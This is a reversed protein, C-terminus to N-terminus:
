VVVLPIKEQDDPTDKGGDPTDFGPALRQHYRRLESVYWRRTLEHSFLGCAAVGFCFALYELRLPLVGLLQAFPPIYVCAFIFVQSAWFCTWLQYNTNRIRGLLGGNAPAEGYSIHWFPKETRVSVLFLLEGWMFMFWGVSSAKMKGWQGCSYAPDITYPKVGAASNGSSSSSGNSSTATTTANTAKRSPLVCMITPNHDCIVMRFPYVESPGEEDWFTRAVYTVTEDFNVHKYDYSFVREAYMRPIRGEWMWETWDFGYRDAVAYDVAGMSDTLQESNGLQIIFDDKFGGGVSAPCQCAIPAETSVWAGMSNQYYGTLCSVKRHAFEAWRDTSVSVDINGRFMYSSLLLPAVVVAQYVFVFPVVRYLWHRMTLVQQDKPRPPVRMQYEEEPEYLLTIPTSFTLSFASLVSLTGSVPRLAGLLAVTTFTVLECAKTGLYYLVYKQLNGFIRRGERAASAISVFNDDGLIIDSAEKAVETGAIGMSVGIDAAKLAAADNVGDGTMVVVNGQLQLSRVIALKDTPQARAWANINRTLNDILPGAILESTAPQSPDQHLTSCEKVLELDDEGVTPIGLNESISKATSMQDGTIMVVRIMATHCMAISEKVGERPPDRLGILCMLSLRGKGKSGCLVPLRDDASMTYLSDVETQSLPLMATVLVRLARKAYEENQRSLFAREGDSALCGVLRDPAGKVIAVHTTHPPLQLGFWDGKWQGKSQVAHFTAAM